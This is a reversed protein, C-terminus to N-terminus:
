KGKLARIALAIANGAINGEGEFLKACREIVEDDHKALSEAPTALNRILADIAEECMRIGSLEDDNIQDSDAIDICIQSCVGLAERLTNIHAKLALENRYFEGGNKLLINSHEKESKLEEKLESIEKELEAIRKNAEATAAQWARIHGAEFCRRRDASDIQPRAKFYANADHIHNAESLAVNREFKRDQESKSLIVEDLPIHKEGVMFSQGYQILDKNAKDQESM